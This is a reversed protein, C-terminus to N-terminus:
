FQFIYRLMKVMNRIPVSWYSWTYNMTHQLGVQDPMYVVACSKRHRKASARLCSTNFVSDDSSVIQPCITTKDSRGWKGKNFLPQPFLMPQKFKGDARKSSKERVIGDFVIWILFTSRRTGTVCIQAKRVAAWHADIGTVTSSFVSCLGQDTLSIKRSSLLSCQHFEAEKAYWVLCQHAM